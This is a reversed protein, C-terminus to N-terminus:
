KLKEPEGLHKKLDNVFRAAEAGDFIRHDFTLSAPLVWRVLIRGDVIVPRQHIKGTALIAAEPYNIIPTAFIGGLSGINTITFTGGRMDMLDLKRQRTKEALQEIEKAIDPITKQDAGKIVPVI